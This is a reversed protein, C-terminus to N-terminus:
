LMITGFGQAHAHIGEKKLYEGFASKENRLGSNRNKYIWVDPCAAKKGEEYADALSGHLATNWAGGMVRGGNVHTGDELAIEGLETGPLKSPNPREGCRIFNAPNNPDGEAPPINDLDEQTLGWNLWIIQLGLKHSPRYPTNFSRM